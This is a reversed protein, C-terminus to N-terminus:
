KKLIKAIRNRADVKVVTAKFKRAEADEMPAYALVIITDGLVALRAAPGNLMM